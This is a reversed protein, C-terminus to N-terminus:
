QTASGDGGIFVPLGNMPLAPKFYSTLFDKCRAGVERIDRLFQMDEVPQASVGYAEIGLSRAIYLSRTLHFDQTVVLAQQIGYVMKARYMSDYTNFGERDVFIDQAPVGADLAYKKMVSIEDQGRAGGDGTLLLKPACDLNYLRIGEDLRNKLVASPKDENIQAGLVLICQAGKNKAEQEGTMFRGTTGLIAANAWVTYLVVAAVIGWVVAKWKRKAKGNGKDM